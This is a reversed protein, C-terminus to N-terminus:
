ARNICTHVKVCDIGSEILERVCCMAKYVLTPGLSDLAGPVQCITPPAVGAAVAVDTATVTRGGFCLAEWLLRHGVSHGLTLQRQLPLLLFLSLPSLMGYMSDYYYVYFINHSRLVTRLDLGGNTSSSMPPTDGLTQMPCM